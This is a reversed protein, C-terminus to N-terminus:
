FIGYYSPLILYFLGLALFWALYILYISIDIGFFNFISAFIPILIIVIFFLLLKNM